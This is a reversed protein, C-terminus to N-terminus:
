RGQIIISASTQDLVYVDAAAVGGLSLQFAPAAAQRLKSLLEENSFYRRGRAAIIFDGAKLKSQAVKDSLLVCQLDPRNAQRAYYEALGPTESAVRAGPEARRAIEFMAPRIEADYFDDQPFFYAVGARGGGIMNTYLRYYPVARLSAEISFFIILLALISPLYRMISNGAFRGGLHRATWRGVFQIGFAATIFVIPLITTFYRTFKGGVVCFPMFGFLVWFLIFFRGDGIKRRFLLPLGALFALLTPLNTKVGVFIFYFYWPTGALWDTVKHSYLKGMFEYSDHGLKQYSAFALMERWTGPLLITPNCILFVVAMVAFFILYRKKGIVWRTTPLAQFIYNYSISIAIFYPIYKSAVMAGFAAGAAWYYPQPNRGPEGEAVRQGRLWFINALLFFFLFFIDEKAIRSFAVASPEFAWLAAAMLGVEMGFLEAAVLYLLIALFAGFITSPLRLAAEASIHLSAHDNVFGLNNWREAIVLSATQLAKMLFPHEGNASTLGHARYDGVAQLKNLEDEGLGEAGLNAVRFCFGGLVLVALLAWLGAKSLVPQGGESFLDPKLGATIIESTPRSKTV